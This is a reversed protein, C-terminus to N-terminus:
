STCEVSLLRAKSCVQHNGYDRIKWLITVRLITRTVFHRTRTRIIPNILVDTVWERKVIPGVADTQRRLELVDPLVSRQLPCLCETKNETNRETKASRARLFM